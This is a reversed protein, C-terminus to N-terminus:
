GPTTALTTKVFASVRITVSPPVHGAQGYEAPGPPGTGELFLHNLRPLTVSSFGATGRLASEWIAQDEAVVQYDRAGRLILIPRALARATGPGDRRQLDLFYGAPIGLFAEGPGAQGSVLRRAQREVASVKRPDAGLFRMQQVVTTPLPRGPPALLVLGAVGGARRAIEPTLLAGLSHGVVFLGDKRVEKRGRLLALAAVADVVVEDDVTVTAPVQMPYVFTRKDYRLTAIGRAALGEALDKFPKNPGVTEDRDHPGSGHVLVVAPFPGGGAPLTLTGGLSWPAQGVVVERSRGGGPLPRESSSAVPPAAPPGDAPRILLEEVTWSTPDVAVEARARGKAFTLAVVRAQLQRVPRRETILYSQLPGLEGTIGRWLGALVAPPVADAMEGGFDRAAGEFDNRQLAEFVKTTLNDVEKGDVEKAGAPRAGAPARAGACSFLLVVVAALALWNVCKGAARMAALRERRGADSDLACPKGRSVRRTTSTGTGTNHAKGM